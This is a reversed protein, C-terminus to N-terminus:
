AHLKTGATSRPMVIARISLHAPRPQYTGRILSIRCLSTSNTGIIKILRIFRHTAWCTLPSSCLRPQKQGDRPSTHNKRDPPALYLDRAAAMTPGTVAIAVTPALPIVAAPQAAPVARASTAHAQLSEAVLSRILHLPDIAAIQSPPLAEASRSIPRALPADEIQAHDNRGEDYARHRDIRQVTQELTKNQDVFDVWISAFGPFLKSFAFGRENARGMYHRVQHEFAGRLRTIDGTIAFEIADVIGSKGTGNPGCIGFNKYKLNLALKKVGRFDEIEIKEISLM